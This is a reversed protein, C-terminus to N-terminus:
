QRVVETSRATEEDKGAKKEVAGGREGIEGEGCPRDQRRQDVAHWHPRYVGRRRVAVDVRKPLMGAGYISFKDNM